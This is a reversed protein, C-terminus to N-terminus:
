PETPKSSVLSGQIAHEYPPQFVFPIYYFITVKPAVINKKISAIAMAWDLIKVNGKILEVQRQALSGMTKGMDVQAYPMSILKENLSNLSDLWLQNRSVLADQLSKDKREFIRM